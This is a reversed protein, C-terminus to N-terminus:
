LLGGHVATWCSIIPQELDNLNSLFGPFAFKEPSKKNLRLLFFGGAIKNFIFILLYVLAKKQWFPYLSELQVLLLLLKQQNLILTQCIGLPAAQVMYWKSRLMLPFFLISFDLTSAFIFTAKWPAIGTIFHMAPFIRARVRRPNKCYGDAM